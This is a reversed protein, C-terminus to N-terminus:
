SINTRLDNNFFLMLVETAALAESCYIPKQIDTNVEREDSFTLSLSNTDNNLVQNEIDLYDDIDINKYSYM